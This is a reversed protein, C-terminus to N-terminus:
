KGVRAQHLNCAECHWAHGAVRMGHGATRQATSAVRNLFCVALTCDRLRERAVVHRQMNLPRTCVLCQIFTTHVLCRIAWAFTANYAAWAPVAFWVGCADVGTVNATRAACNLGAAAVGNGHASRRGGTHSGRVRRHLRLLLAVRRAHNLQSHPSQHCTSSIPPPKM